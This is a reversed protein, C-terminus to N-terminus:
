ECAIHIYVYTIRIYLDYGVRMRYILNSPIRLAPFPMPSTILLHLMYINDASENGESMRIELIEDGLLKNFGCDCHSDYHQRM